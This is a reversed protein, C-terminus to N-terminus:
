KRDSAEGCPCRQVTHVRAVSASPLFISDADPMYRATVRHTGVKLRSTEWTARGKADLTMAEGADSGDVAFQVTGSPRDNTSTGNAAVFATFAVSEGVQSPESDDTVSVITADAM